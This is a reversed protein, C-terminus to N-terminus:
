SSVRFKDLCSKDYNAAEGIHTVELRIIEVGVDTERAEGCFSLTKDYQSFGDFDFSYNFVSCDGKREIVNLGDFQSCGPAGLGTAQRIAELLVREGGATEENM